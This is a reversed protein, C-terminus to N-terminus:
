TGGEGRMLVKKERILNECSEILLRTVSVELM